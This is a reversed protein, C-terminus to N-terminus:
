TATNMSLSHVSYFEREISSHHCETDIVARRFKLNMTEEVRWTGDRTPALSLFGHPRSKAARCLEGALDLDTVRAILCRQDNVAPGTANPGGAWYM